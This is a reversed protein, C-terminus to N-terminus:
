VMCEEYLVNTEPVHYIDDSWFMAAFWDIEFAKEV